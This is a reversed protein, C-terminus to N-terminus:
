SKKSKNYKKGLNSTLIKERLHVVREITRCNDITWGKEKDIRTLNVSCNERGRNEWAWDTNWIKEWQEFTLQHIEQRYAAQAKHKLWAVYQDHRRPDPGSIWTQPQHGRPRGRSSNGARPKYPVKRDQENINPRAAM